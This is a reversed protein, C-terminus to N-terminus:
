FILQYSLEDKWDDGVRIWNKKLGMKQFGLNEFLHISASNDATINCYIQIMGLHDKVYSCLLELAEKAYGRGREEKEAILIGVGVKLNFPDFDFLDIFGVKVGNPSEIVLRLQKLTYIDASVANDIFTKLAHVSYPTLTNSYEWVSPDNEWQYLVDLDKHELPRLKVKEGALM